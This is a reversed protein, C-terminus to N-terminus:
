HLYPLLESFTIPKTIIKGEKNILFMTPTAYIYYESTVKSDWGKLDSVNYWTLTYKKIFSLWDERKNDLSVAVVEFKKEKQNKYLESLQPILTQCHPCWSAYFLILVKEAKINVLNVEKGTTDNLVINPVVAGIPLIKNQDIRRQISNETKEDLCLDDKIVYNQVMYDIIKDFGFKKFGDILYEVIHQYVLQHVKAKNLITDVAIMFEKELLVKSFQPNRYYTLYEITKNTFADSYILEADRFDINDLAHAKLYTLQKEIPLTMDVVPLLSTKIYKAIFSNPKKQSTNNVFELYDKQLQTLKNQTTTYYDDDKPYRALILQLLETKTKYVRNLKIFDYYLNNSESKGVKLSDLINNADTKINVEENDYIFAVGKNNSFSLRYIGPHHKNQEFFYNFQDVLSSKISDIFFTKEGQLSILSVSNTKIGNVTISVSQTFISNCVIFFVLLFFIIHKM